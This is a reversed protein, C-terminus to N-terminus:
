NKIFDFHKEPDIMKSDISLKPSVPFVPAPLVINPVQENWIWDLDIQTKREEEFSYFSSLDQIKHIFAVFKDAKMPKEGSMIM